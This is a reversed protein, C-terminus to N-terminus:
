SFCNETPFFLVFDYVSQVESDSSIKLIAGGRSKLAEEVLASYTTTQAMGGLKDSASKREKKKHRQAKFFFAVRARV